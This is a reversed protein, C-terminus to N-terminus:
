ERGRVYILGFLLSIVTLFSSNSPLFGETGGREEPLDPESPVEDFLFSNNVIQYVESCMNSADCGIVKVQHEGREWLIFNINPTNWLNGTKFINGSPNGDIEMSFLVEEGDPDSFQGGM